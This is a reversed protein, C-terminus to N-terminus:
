CEFSDCSCLLSSAFRRVTVRVQSALLNCPVRVWGFTTGKRARSRGSLSHSECSVPHWSYTHDAFDGSSKPRLTDDSSKRQGCMALRSVPTSFPSPAHLPFSFPFTSNPPPPHPSSAGLALKSPQSSTLLPRSVKFSRVSRGCCSRQRLRVCHRRNDDRTQGIACVKGDDTSMATLRSPERSCHRRRVAMLPEGRSARSEM